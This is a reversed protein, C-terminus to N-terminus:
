KHPPEGHLEARHRRTAVDVHIENADRPLPGGRREGELAGNVSDAGGDAPAQEILSATADAGCAASSDSDVGLPSASDSDVGLPSANCSAADGHNTEVDICRVVNSRRSRM